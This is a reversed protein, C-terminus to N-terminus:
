RPRPKRKGRILARMRELAEMVSRLKELLGRSQNDSLERENALTVNDAQPKVKVQDSENTISKLRGNINAVEEQVKQLKLAVERVRNSVDVLFGIVIVGVVGGVFIIAAIIEPM